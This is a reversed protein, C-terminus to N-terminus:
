TNAWPGFANTKAWNVFTIIDAAAVSETGVTIIAAADKITVKPADVVVEKAGVLEVYPAELKVTNGSEININRAGDELGELVVFGAATYQINQVAVSANTGGSTDTAPCEYAVTLAADIEAKTTPM